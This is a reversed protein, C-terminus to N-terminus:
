ARRHRVDDKEKAKLRENEATLEEKKARLQQNEKRAYDIYQKITKDLAENLGWLGLAGFVVIVVVAAVIIAITM